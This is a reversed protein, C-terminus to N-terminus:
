SGAGVGPWSYLSNDARESIASPALLGQRSQAGSPSTTGGFSNHGHDVLKAEVRDSGAVGDTRFLALRTEAKVRLYSTVVGARWRLRRPPVTRDERPM